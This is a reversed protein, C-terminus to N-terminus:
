IVDDYKPRFEINTLLNQTIAGRENNIDAFSYILSDLAEWLAFSFLFGFVEILFGQNTFFFLFTYILFSFFGITILFFLKNRYKAYEKQIKYLEIAYHEKFVHKIIGQERPTFECGTIILKIQIDNGLM